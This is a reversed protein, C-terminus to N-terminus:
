CQLRRKFLLMRSFHERMLVQENKFPSASIDPPAYLRNDVERYGAETLRIRITTMAKHLTKHIAPPSVGMERALAEYTTKAMFGRVVFQEKSSLKSIERGFIERVENREILEPDTQPDPIIDHKTAEGDLFGDEVVASEELHITEWHRVKDQQRYLDNLENRIAQRAYAKFDSGHQPNFKEAARVLAKRAHQTIDEGDANPINRYAGAIADALGLHSLILQDRQDTGDRQESPM